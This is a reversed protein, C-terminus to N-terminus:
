HTTTGVGLLASALDQPQALTIPAAEAASGLGTTRGPLQPPPQLAAVASTTSRPPSTQRFVYVSLLYLLLLSFGLEVVHLAVLKWRVSHRQQQQQQQNSYQQPSTMSSVPAAVDFRYTINNLVPKMLDEHLKSAFHQLALTVLITVVLVTVNQGSFWDSFSPPTTNAKGSCKMANFFFWDEKEQQSEFVNFRKKVHRTIMIIRRGLLCALFFYEGQVEAQM